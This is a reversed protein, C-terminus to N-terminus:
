GCVVARQVAQIRRVSDIQATDCEHRWGGPCACMVEPKAGFRSALADEIDSTKYTTNDSPVIGAAELYDQMDM